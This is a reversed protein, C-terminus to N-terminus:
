MTLNEMKKRNKENMEEVWRQSEESQKSMEQKVEVLEDDSGDSIEVIEWPSSDPDDVSPNPTKTDEERKNTTNKTIAKAVPLSANEVERAAEEFSLVVTEEPKKEEEKKLESIIGKLKRIGRKKKKNTQVSWGLSDEFDFDEEFPEKDVKESPHLVVRTKVNRLLPTAEVEQSNSHETSIVTERDEASELTAESYSKKRTRRPVKEIVVDPVPLEGPPPASTAAEEQGPKTSEQDKSQGPQQLQTDGPQSTPVMCSRGAELDGGGAKEGHQDPRRGEEGRKARSRRVARHFRKMQREELAARSGKKQAM